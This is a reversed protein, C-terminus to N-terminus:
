KLNLEAKLQLYLEESTAAIRGDAFAFAFEKLDKAFVVEEEMTSLLEDQLSDSPYLLWGGTKNEPTDDSWYLWVYILEGHEAGPMHMQVTGMFSDQLFPLLCNKQKGNYTVKVDGSVSGDAEYVQAPSGTFIYKGPIFDDYAFCMLYIVAIVALLIGLKQGKTKKKRARSYDMADRVVQDAAQLGVMPNQPSPDATQGEMLEYLTVQLAAALPEIMKLDPFGKGTEWKSVAKDTVHLKSALDKQTMDLSKRRQAIFNGLRKEDM